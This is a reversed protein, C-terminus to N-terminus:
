ASVVRTWVDNGWCVFMSNQTLQTTVALSVAAGASGGSITGAATAPYVSLANAGTNRVFVVLGAPANVPLSVGTSAAVTSVNNFRSQLPTATSLTSGAATVATSASDNYSIM